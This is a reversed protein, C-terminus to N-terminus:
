FNITFGCAGGLGSSLNTLDDQIGYVFAGGLACGTGWRKPKSCKLPGNPCVTYFAEVDALAREIRKAQEVYDTTLICRYGIPCDPPNKFYVDSANESASLATSASM